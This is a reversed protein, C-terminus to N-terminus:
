SRAELQGRALALFENMKGRVYDPSIKQGAGTLDRAVKQVSADGDGHPRESAAVAAAYDELHDEELGMLGGAWLGLLRSGRAEVQMEHDDALKRPEGPAHTALITM